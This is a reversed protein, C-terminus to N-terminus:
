RGAGTQHGNSPHAAAQRRRMERMPVGKPFAWASEGTKRAYVAACIALFGTVAAAVALCALWVLWAGQAAGAAAATIMPWGVAVAAAPRPGSLHWVAAVAVVGSVVARAWLPLPLGFGAAVVAVASAAAAVVRNSTTM